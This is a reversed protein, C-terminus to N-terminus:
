IKEVKKPHCVSDCGHWDLNAKSSVGITRILECIMKALLFDPMDCFSEISHKNILQELEKKFEEMTKEKRKIIIIHNDVEFELTHGLEEIIYNIKRVEDAM